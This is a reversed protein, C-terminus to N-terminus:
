ALDKMGYGHRKLVQTAKVRKGTKASELLMETLLAVKAGFIPPVRNVKTRGLILKVFNDCPDAPWSKPKSGKVLRPKKGDVSLTMQGRMGEITLVGKDGVLRVDDSFGPAYDGIIILRASVGGNLTLAFMGNEEVRLKKGRFIRDISGEAAEPVLGTLWLLIDQYHSGSDNIQGGCSQRPDSRWGFNGAPYRQAMYVYCFELKGIAGKGVLERAKIFEGQYHRQYCIAYVLEREEALKATELAKAAGIVMPKEILVHKGSELAFKAQEYHVNHPSFIAVANVDEEAIMRRYDKVGAYRKVPRGVIEQIRGFNEESPEVAAVVEVRPDSSLLDRTRGRAIGGAGILGVRVAKAKAM